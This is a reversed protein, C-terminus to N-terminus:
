LITEIGQGVSSSGVYVTVDGDPELVMRANERPGSAGGEIFCAIGLGRYRGEILKGASASREHWRSEQLCRDFTQRHDGGDCASEGFGDNPEVSALKYPMEEPVLLNRRRIELRDLGLDAAAMDLLREMMFNSE